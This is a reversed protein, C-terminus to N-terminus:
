TSGVCRVCIKENSIYERSLYISALEEVFQKYIDLNFLLTALRSMEGIFTGKKM